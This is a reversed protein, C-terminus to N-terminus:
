GGGVFQVIELEAGPEIQTRPWSTKSVIQRNLEVAVRDAPLELAALLGAISLGASVSKQEGNVKIEIPQVTTNM